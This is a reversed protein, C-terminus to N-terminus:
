DTEPVAARARGRGDAILENATAGFSPIKQERMWARARVADGNFWPRVFEGVESRWMDECLAEKVARWLAPDDDRAM